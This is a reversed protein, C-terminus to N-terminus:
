RFVQRNAGLTLELRVIEDGRQVTLTVEDGVEKSRLVSLLELYDRTPAGDVATIVDATVDIRTVRGQADTVTRQQLSRLGAAEAPGGPQVTEVIVGPRPGLDRRPDRPTYNEPRPMSFGIVPVDRQEGALLADVVEGGSLVPVAYSAFSSLGAVGRLLPPIFSGQPAGYAIYSVVGVAEGKEDLVPGGSDGPSLAATLEITGNAFDARRATVGLRTIKGARAELFDGGSNGIAVVETGWM